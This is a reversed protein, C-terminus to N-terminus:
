NWLSMRDAAPAWGPHACFYRGDRLMAGADVGIALARRMGSLGVRCLDAVESTTRATRRTQLLALLALRDVVPRIGAEVRRKLTGTPFRAAVLDAVADPGVIEAAVFTAPKRGGWWQYTGAIAPATMEAERKFGTRASATRRNHPSQCGLVEVALMSAHVRGRRYAALYCPPAAVPLNEPGTREMM